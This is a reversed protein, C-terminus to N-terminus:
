CLIIDLGDYCNFIKRLTVEDAVVPPFRIRRQTIHDSALSAVKSAFSDVRQVSPLDNLAVLNFFEPCQLIYAELDLLAFYKAYNAM